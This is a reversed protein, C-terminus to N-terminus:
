RRDHIHDYQKITEQLQKAYISASEAAKEASVWDSKLCFLHCNKIALQTDLYLESYDKTRMIEKNPKM